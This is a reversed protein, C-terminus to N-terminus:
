ARDDDGETSITNSAIWALIDSERFRIACGPRGGVRVYTPGAGRSRWRRLTSASISLLAAAEKECVLPSKPRPHSM